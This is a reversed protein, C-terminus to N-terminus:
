AAQQEAPQEAPAAARNAHETIVAKLMTTIGELIARPVVPLAEEMVQMAPDDAISAVAAVNQIATGIRTLHNDVVDHGKALLDELEALASAHSSQLAAATDALAM